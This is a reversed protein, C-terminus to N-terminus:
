WPFSRYFDFPNCTSASIKRFSRKEKKELAKQNNIPLLFKSDIEIARAFMEGAKEDENLDMLIVGEMNYIAAEMPISQSQGQGYFVTVKSEKLDERALIRQITLQCEGLRKLDYQLTAIQYQHQINNTSPFLKEFDELAMKILGLNKESVAKLELIGMNSPDRQLIDGSVLICQQNMGVQFYLFALSDMYNTSDPYKALIGYYSMAVPGPDQYRLAQKIISKELLIEFKTGTKKSEDSPNPESKKKQASLNSLALLSLCITLLIKM